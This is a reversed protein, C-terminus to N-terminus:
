CDFCAFTEISFCNALLCSKHQIRKLGAGPANLKHNQYIVIM